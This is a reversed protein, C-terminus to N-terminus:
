RYHPTIPFQAELGIDRWTAASRCRPASARSGEGRGAERLRGEECYTESDIETAAPNESM